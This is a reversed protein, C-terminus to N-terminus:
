LATFLILQAVRIVRAREAATFTGREIIADLDSITGAVLSEQAGKLKLAGGRSRLRDLVDRIAKAERLSPEPRELWTPLAEADNGARAVFANIIGTIATLKPYDLSEPTDLPTHYRPSEGTSFFLYPVKRARFPGYDSRDYVLLDSGVMALKVSPAKEASQELVTRLGPAHETGLVFVQEACVGGLAGGILDATMFLKIRDLPIPPEKVFHRSGWLGNEELDFAVFMISRGLAEPAEALCRAVEMLMAVGSANDDAGPYLRGARVGLHDYHASLIIWEDRRKPDAGLRRAAINRGVVAGPGKGPIDQTFQGDFAPELGLARFHDVIYAEAKRAGEGSRGQFDPGALTAVIAKVRDIDPGPVRDESRAQHGPGLGAAIVFTLGIWLTQRM